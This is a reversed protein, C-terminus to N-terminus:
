RAPGGKIQKFYLTLKYRGGGEPVIGTGEVALPGPGLACEERLFDMLPGRARAQAERVLELGDEMRRWRERREADDTEVSM